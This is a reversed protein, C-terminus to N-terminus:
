QISKLIELVDQHHSKTKFKDMIHVIKGNKVLSLLQEKLAWTNNGMFKKRGWVQYKDDFRKLRKSEDPRAGIAIADVQDLENKYDSLGCAQTTCSPTMAKPYFYLVVTKNGRFDKLSIIEDHQNNLKFTPAIKGPELM